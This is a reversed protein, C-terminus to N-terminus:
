ISIVIPTIHKRYDYCYVETNFNISVSTNTNIAVMPIIKNIIIINNFKSHMKGNLTFFFSYINRREYIVGAGVTDGMEFIKYFKDKEGWCCISGDFSNYGISENSWGLITDKLETISSGYGISINMSNSSNKFQYTDITLEYYYVNSTIFNISNHNIFPVTFPIPSSLFYPLYCNALILNHTEDFIKYRSGKCTNIALITPLPTYLLYDSFKINYINQKFNNYLFDKIILLAAEKNSHYLKVLEKTM